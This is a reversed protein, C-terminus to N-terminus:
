AKARAWYARIRALADALHSACYVSGQMSRNPCPPGQKRNSGDVLWRGVQCHAGGPKKLTLVGSARM